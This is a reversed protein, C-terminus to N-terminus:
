DREVSKIKGCVVLDGGCYKKVYLGEGRIIIQGKKLFIAIEEPSYRNIAKVCELYMANDGFLVARFSSSSLLESESFCSKINDIFSM